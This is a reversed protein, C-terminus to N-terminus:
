KQNITKITAEQLCNSFIEVVETASLPGAVLQKSNLQLYIFKLDSIIPFFLMKYVVIEMDNQYFTDIVAIDDSQLTGKFKPDLENLKVITMLGNDWTRVYESLAFGNKVEEFQNPIDIKCSDLLIQNKGEVCSVVLFFM